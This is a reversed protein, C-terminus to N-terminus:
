RFPEFMLNGVIGAGPGSSFVDWLDDMTIERRALRRGIEGALALMCRAALDEAAPALRRPDSPNRMMITEIHRLVPQVAPNHQEREVFGRGVHRILRYVRSTNEEVVAIIERMLPEAALRRAANLRVRFPEMDRAFKWREIKGLLDQLAREATRERINRELHAHMPDPRVLPLLVTNDRHERIDHPPSEAQPDIFVVVSADALGTLAGLRIGFDFSGFFSIFAAAEQTVASTTLVITHGFAFPNPPLMAAMEPREWWVFVNDGNGQVFAKIADLGSHRVQYRFHHAFFTLAIYAVARLGDPGGLRLQVQHRRGDRPANLAASRVAGDFIELEEGEPSTYRLPEARDRHDPRVALLANITKLQDGIIAALPSFGQNHTGCYIGKNTRRGGLVAPFTHKRSGARKGCIICTRPM